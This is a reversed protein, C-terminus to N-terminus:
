PDQSVAWSIKQLLLNPHRGSPTHDQSPLRSHWVEWLVPHLISLQLNEPITGLYSKTICVLPFSLTVWSGMFSSISLIPQSTLSLHLYWIITHTCFHYLDYFTVPVLSLNCLMIWLIFIYPINGLNLASCSYPLLVKIHLLLKFYM